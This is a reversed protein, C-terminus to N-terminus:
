RRPPRGPDSAGRGQGHIRREREERRAQSEAAMAQFRASLDTGGGDASELNVTRRARGPAAPGAQSPEAQRAGRTARAAAPGTPTPDFTGDLMSTGDFTGDLTMDLTDERNEVDAFPIDADLDVEREPSMQGPEDVDTDDGEGMREDEDTEEAERQAKIREMYARRRAAGPPGDSTDPAAARKRDRPEIGEAERRARADAVRQQQRSAEAAAAARAARTEDYAALDDATLHIQTPQRRLM